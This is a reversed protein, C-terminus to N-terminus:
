RDQLNRDSSGRVLEQRACHLFKTEGPEIKGGFGGWKGAGFGQKKLGLLVRAPPNGELLLCLSGDRM